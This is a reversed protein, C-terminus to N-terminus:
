RKCTQHQSDHVGKVFTRAQTQVDLANLLASVVAVGDAGALIVPRVNEVTIGGIAILPSSTRARLREIIEIGTINKVEKTSSPYITGVGFYTPGYAIAQEFEADNHVSVGVIKNQGLLQRAAPLPLDQQGLHVGAAEVARAVDARDNIILPVGYHDTLRKVLRADEYFAKIDSSKNRLQIVGAGGTLVEQAVHEIDRDGVTTKDLIAYLSWDIEITSINGAM